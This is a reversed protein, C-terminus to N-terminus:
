TPRRRGRCRGEVPETFCNSFVYCTPPVLAPPPGTDAWRLNLTATSRKTAIEMGRHILKRGGRKGVHVFAPRQRYRLGADGHRRWRNVRQAAFACSVGMEAAVHAIPRINCQKFLRCREELSLPANAQRM